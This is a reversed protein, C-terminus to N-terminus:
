IQLIGLLAIIILLGGILKTSLSMNSFIDKRSNYM